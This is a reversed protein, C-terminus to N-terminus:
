KAASTTITAARTIAATGAHGRGAAATRAACALVAVALPVSTAARMPTPATSSQLPAAKHMFKRYRDRAAQFQVVHLARRKKALRMAMVYLSMAAPYESGIVGIDRGLKVTAHVFLAGEVRRRLTAFSSQMVSLSYTEDNASFLRQDIGDPEDLTEEIAAVEAAPVLFGQLATRGEASEYNKLLFDNGMLSVLTDKNRPSVARYLQEGQSTTILIFRSDDKVESLFYIGSGDDGAASYEGEVKGPELTIIRLHGERNVGKIPKDVFVDEQAQQHAAAFNLLLFAFAGVARRICGMKINVPSLLP